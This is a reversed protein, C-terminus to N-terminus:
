ALMVRSDRLDEQAAEERVGVADERLTATDERATVAGDREERSPRNRVTKQRDSAAARTSARRTSKTM